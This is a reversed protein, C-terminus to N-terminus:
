RSLNFLFNAEMVRAFPDVYNLFHGNELHGGGGDQNKEKKKLDGILLSKRINKQAM